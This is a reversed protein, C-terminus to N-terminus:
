TWGTFAEDLPAPAFALGARSAGQEDAPSDGVHLARQPSVGLRELAATFIVPGPKETGAEASTIVADLLPSLELARLHEHLGVDWNSIVALALGRARLGALVRRVGPLVAFRLAEVYGLAFGDDAARGGLADLFVGACEQQLATLSAEDRGTISHRRYHAMEIAFAAAIEERSRELKHRRLLRELAPEPDILDVLTGFADLTVADLEAFRM